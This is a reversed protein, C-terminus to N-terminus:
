TTPDVRAVAIARDFDATWGTAWLVDRPPVCRSRSRWPSGTLLNGKTPDGDALDIVRQALTLAETM